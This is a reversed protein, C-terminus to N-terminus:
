HGMSMGPDPTRPTAYLDESHWGEVDKLRVTYNGEDDARVEEIEWTDWTNPCPGSEIKIVLDGRKFLPPIIELSGEEFWKINKDADKLIGLYKHELSYKFGNKEPTIGMIKYRECFFGLRHNVYQGEKFKSM